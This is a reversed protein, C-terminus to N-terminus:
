AGLRSPDIQTLYYDRDFLGLLRTLEMEFHILARRNGFARALMRVLRISHLMFKADFARHPVGIM